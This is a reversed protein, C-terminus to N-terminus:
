KGDFDSISYGYDDILMQIVEARKGHTRARSLSFENRERNMDHPGTLELLAKMTKLSTTSYVAADFFSGTIVNEPGREAAPTFSDKALIAKKAEQRAYVPLLLAVMSDREGDVWIPDAKVQQLSQLALHTWLYSAASRGQLLDKVLSNVSTPLQKVEPLASLSASIYQRLADVRFPADLNVRLYQSMLDELAPPAVRRLIAFKIPLGPIDLKIKKLILDLSRSECEDLGDLVCIVRCGKLDQLIEIFMYWLFQFRTKWWHNGQKGDKDLQVLQYILSRVLCAANNRLELRADFFYYLLIEDSTMTLQLQETLYVALLTRGSGIGESIWISNDDSTRWKIFEPTQLVWDWKGQVTEGKTTKIVDRDTVPDAAFPNRIIKASAVTFMPNKMAKDARPLLTVTDVKSLDLMIIDIEANIEVFIRDIDKRRQLGFKTGWGHHENGELRAKGLLDVLKGALINCQHLSRGVQDRWYSVPIPVFRVIEELSDLYKLQAQAPYNEPCGFVSLILAHIELNLEIFREGEIEADFETKSPMTLLDTVFKTRKIANKKVLQALLDKPEELFATLIINAGVEEYAFNGSGYIESLANHLIVGDKVLGRPIKHEWSYAQPTKSM